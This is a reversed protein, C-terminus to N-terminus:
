AIRNTFNYNDRLYRHVSVFVRKYYNIIMGTLLSAISWDSLELTSIHQLLYCLLSDAQLCIERDNEDFHSLYAIVSALLPIQNSEQLASGFMAEFQSQVHIRFHPFELPSEERNIHVVM